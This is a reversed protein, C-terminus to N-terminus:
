QRFGLKALLGFKAKRRPAPSPEPAAPAPTMLKQDFWSITAAKLLQSGEPVPLPTFRELWDPTDGPVVAPVNGSTSLMGGAGHVVVHNDGTSVSLASGVLPLVDPAIPTIGTGIVFMKVDDGVIRILVPLISRAPFFAKDFYIQRSQSNFVLFGGHPSLILCAYDRLLQAVEATEFDPPAAGRVGIHKDMVLLFHKYAESRWGRMFLAYILVGNIGSTIIKDYDKHQKVRKAQLARYTLLPHKWASREIAHQIFHGSGRQVDVLVRRLRSLDSDEAAAVIQMMIDSQDFGSALDHGMNPFPLEDFPPLRKRLMNVNYDDIGDNPDFIVTISGACDEPRIGMGKHQPRPVIKHQAVNRILIKRHIESEFDLDDPDLSYTPAFVIVRDARLRRSFKLAAWGGMSHGLVIIRRRGKAHQEVLRFADEIEPTAYYARVKTNIGICNLSHQEVASRCFYYEQAVDERYAPAFTVLLDQSRGRHHHVVLEEGEFIIM